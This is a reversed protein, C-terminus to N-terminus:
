GVPVDLEAALRNALPVGRTVIGMLLFDKGKNLEVLEHQMRTLALSVEEANMLYAAGMIRRSVNGPQGSAGAIESSFRRSNVTTPGSAAPARMVARTKARVQARRSSQARRRRG